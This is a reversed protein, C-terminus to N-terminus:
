YFHLQVNVLVLQSPQILCDAYQKLFLREICLSSVTRMNEVAEAATQGAQEYLKTMTKMTGSLQLMQVSGPKTFYKFIILNKSLLKQFKFIKFMSVPLNYNM